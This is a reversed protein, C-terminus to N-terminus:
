RESAAPPWSSRAGRRRTVNPSEGFRQRYGVSFRGLHNFGCSLAVEAVTRQEQAGSLLLDRAREFRRERLFEMPSFGRFKRFASFVAAASVGTVQALTEISIPSHLHAGMYAEARHLHRPGTKEPQALRASYNNRLGALM